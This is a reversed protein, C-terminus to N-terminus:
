APIERDRVAQALRSIEEESPCSLKKNRESQEKVLNSEVDSGRAPSSVPECVPPPSTPTPQPLIPVFRQTENAEMRELRKIERNLYWIAKHLDEIGNKREHRWIYKVANGLNFPMHEVVQICEIGSPHSTYHIPYTIPDHNPQKTEM